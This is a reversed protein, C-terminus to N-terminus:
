FLSISVTTYSSTGSAKSFHCARPSLTSETEVEKLHLAYSKATELERFLM